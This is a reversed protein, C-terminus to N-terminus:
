EETKTDDTEEKPEYTNGIEKNLNDFDIVWDINPMLTTSKQIIHKARNLMKLMKINQEELVEITNTGTSM